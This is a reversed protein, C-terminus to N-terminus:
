TPNDGITDDDARIKDFIAEWTSNNEPGIMLNNADTTVTGNTLQIFKNGSLPRTGDTSFAGTVVANAGTGKVYRLWFHYTTGTTVSDTTTAATGGRITIRSSAAIELSAVTANASNRLRCFVKGAAPLSVFHAKLYVEITGQDAPLAVFTNKGQSSVSIRLSQSGDLPAPATAYDEDATGSGAETWTEGNDYGAGEFDQQVLYTPGAVGSTIAVGNAKARGAGNLKTATTISVGNMKTIDALAFSACAALLLGFLIRKM